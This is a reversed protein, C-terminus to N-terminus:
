FWTEVRRRILQWREDHGCSHQPLRRGSVGWVQHECEAQSCRYVGDFLILEGSRFSQNDVDCAFSCAIHRM